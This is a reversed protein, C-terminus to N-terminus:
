WMNLRVQQKNYFVARWFHIQKLGMVSQNQYIHRHLLVWRVREL